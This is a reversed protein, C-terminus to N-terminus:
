LDRVAASIAAQILRPNYNPHNTIEEYQQRRPTAAAQQRLPSYYLQNYLVHARESPTIKDLGLMIKAHELIDDGLKEYTQRAQQLVYDRTTLIFVKEPDREVVHLLRVLESDEGRDLKAELSNQGLFDDFFLIQKVNPQLQEELERVKAVAAVPHWGEAMWELLLISATATKGVGPPGALVCIGSQKLIQRAERVLSTEVFTSRLRLLDSKLVASRLYEIQKTLARAINSSTLWLKINQNEVEPHRRLRAALDERGLVDRESIRHDFLEVVEKKNARTLRASTALVYRAATDVIPRAAEARLESRMQSLTAGPRHKCQIVLEDSAALHLPGGTPGLVRLDAGQDPGSPFIQVDVKWDASLLDAILQEFDYHSLEDFSSM